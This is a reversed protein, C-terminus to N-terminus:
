IVLVGEEIYVTQQKPFVKDLLNVIELSDIRMRVRSSGDFRKLAETVIHILLESVLSESGRETYVHDVTLEGLIGARVLALATVERGGKIYCSLNFDIHQEYNDKLFGKYGEQRFIRNLMSSVSNKDDSSLSKVRDTMKSLGEPDKVDSLRIVFDPDMGKYFSFHWKELFEKMLPDDMDSPLDITAGRIGEDAMLSILEGMLANGVGSKRYLPHVYIWRIRLIADDELAEDDVSYVAASVAQLAGDEEGIRLSGIGRSKKIIIEEKLGDPIMDSFCDLNDDNIRTLLPSATMEYEIRADRAAGIMEMMDESSLCFDRAQHILKDIKRLYMKEMKLYNTM